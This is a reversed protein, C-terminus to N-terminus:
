VRSSFFLWRTLQVPSCVEAATPEETEVQYEPEFPDDTEVYGSDMKPDM